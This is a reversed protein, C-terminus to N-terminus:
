GIRQLNGNQDMRFRISDLEETLTLGLQRAKDLIRLLANYDESMTVDSPYTKAEDLQERLSQIEEKAKSLENELYKTRQQLKQALNLFNDIEQDENVDIEDAAITTSVNVLRTPVEQITPKHQKRIEKAEAVETVYQKRVESNWRFGCAASTRGMSQAAEEFAGLQTGGERIYRIVTEALLADHENTWQDSRTKM